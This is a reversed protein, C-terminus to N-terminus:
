VQGPGGPRVPAAQVEGVAPVTVTAVYARVREPGLRVTMAFLYIVVSFAAVVGMDVWFPIVKHGGDFQGLYSIAAMGALYPWLWIAARWDLSPREPNAKTVYSIALLVFGIGVAAFLKWDTNWGGWYIILNAFVFGVPVLVEARALRYPRLREPDQRRLAGLALPATGYTLATASTVLAVLRQWSPFPLFLLMGVAFSFLISFLPIGRDSVRAFAPPVYGNRGLAYSIRASTATYTLGTAAPSIIADIYLLIALWALGNGKALGAFPGFIGPFSIHAWGHRVSQPSLAGIFALELGVYLVVGILVSGIVAAPINRQPNRSEGGLAIAQEFGILAFIVGGTSIAEFVGKMGAPAFGGAGGSFNSGHFAVFLLAALTLVPVAIKWFVATTNTDRFRRIGLVNIFTFVLLFVTAVGYGPGTLLADSGVKHTLWPAYNTAYRLAAETEIPALTVSALWAFWGAAFGVISGYAYHPFRATGGAVPYMGGLEAHILALLIMMVGAIIWALIAAPGAIESAGLAGLLWGSGIISGVSVFLLGLLGVERRLGTDGAGTSSLDIALDAM